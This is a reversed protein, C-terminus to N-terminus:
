CDEEMSELKSVLVPSRVSVPAVWSAGPMGGGDKLSQFQMHSVAGVRYKHPSQPNSSQDEFICPLCKSCETASSHLEETGKAFTFQADEM